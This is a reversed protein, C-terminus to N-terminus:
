LIDIQKPNYYADADIQSLSTNFGSFPLSDIILQYKDFLIGATIENLNQYLKEVAGSEEFEYIDPVSLQANVTFSFFM